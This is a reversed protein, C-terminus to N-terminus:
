KSLSISVPPPLQLDFFMKGDYSACNKPIIKGWFLEESVLLCNYNSLHVRFLWAKPEWMKSIHWVCICVWCAYPCVCEELPLTPQSVGNELTCTHVWCLSFHVPGFSRPCHCSMGVCLLPHSTALLPWSIWALCHILWLCFIQFGRGWFHMSWPLCETPPLPVGKAAGSSPFLVSEQTLWSQPEIGKSARHSHTSKKVWLLKNSKLSYLVM